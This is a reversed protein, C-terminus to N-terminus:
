GKYTWEINNDKIYEMLATIMDRNFLPDQAARLTYKGLLYIPNQGLFAVDSKVAQYCANLGYTSDDIVTFM